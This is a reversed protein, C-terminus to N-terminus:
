TASADSLTQTPCVCVTGRTCYYGETLLKWGESYDGTSAFTHINPVDHEESGRDQGAGAQLRSVSWGTSM